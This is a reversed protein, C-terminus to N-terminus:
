EEDKVWQDAVEHEVEEELENNDTNESEDNEEEQEQDQEADPANHPVLNEEYDVGAILSADFIPNGRWNAFKLETLGQKKALEEVRKIVM